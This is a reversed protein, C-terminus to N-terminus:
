APLLRLTTWEAPRHFSLERLPATSSHVPPRERACDYRCVAARLLTDPGLRELGLARAPVKLRAAWHNAGVVAESALGSRSGLTFHSLPERGARFEALGGPPWRLQLRRNEPTVHFEFYEGRGGAQVFLEGVDGLVWTPENLRRARNGLPAGLFIWEVVLAKPQWFFRARGRRFGAGTGGSSWAQGLSRWEGRRVSPVPLPGSVAPAPPVLWPPAVTM